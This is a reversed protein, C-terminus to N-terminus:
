SPIISNKLYFLAGGVFIIIPAPWDYKMVFFFAILSIVLSTILDNEGAKM